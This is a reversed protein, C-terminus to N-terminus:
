ASPSAWSSFPSEVVYLMNFFVVCIIVNVRIVALRREAPDDIEAYPPYRRNKRPSPPNEALISQVTHYSPRRGYRVFCVDAIERFHLFPFETKLEVVALRIATPVNRHFDERQKTTLTFLNSM